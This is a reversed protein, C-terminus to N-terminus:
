RPVGPMRQLQGRGDSALFARLQQYPRHPNNFSL